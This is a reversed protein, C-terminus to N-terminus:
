SGRFGYRKLRGLFSFEVLDADENGKLGGDEDLVGGDRGEGKRCEQGRSESGSGGGRWGPGDIERGLGYDWGEVSGVFGGEARGVVM